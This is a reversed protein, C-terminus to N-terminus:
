QWTRKLGATHDFLVPNRFEGQMDVMYHFKHNKVKLPLFAVSASRAQTASINNVDLTFMRNKGFPGYTVITAEKGGKRLILYKVARLTYIWSVSLIGWGILFSVITFSNKWKSEGFNIRRWWVDDSSKDVPVDKLTQYATLALYNWFGFQVIGFFNIVKFSKENNSKYLIVDKVVNTNVDLTHQQSFLRHFQIQPKLKLYIKILNNM